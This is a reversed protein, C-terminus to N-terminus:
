VIGCQKNFGKVWGAIRRNLDTSRRVRVSIQGHYNQDVNKRMTMIKNKKFYIKDFKSKPYGLENSWYEVFVNKTEKFKEHVYLELVIDDDIIKLYEKLWFIFFSLMRSDSNSFKIGVSVNTEKQKEGEAWYLMIGALWLDRNSLQGIDSFTSKDIAEIKQLRQKRKKAGGRQIASLKRETLAQKQKKSLGVSRLWQSLTSKAVPVKKLIQSYSLGDKRLSVSLNKLNKKAM